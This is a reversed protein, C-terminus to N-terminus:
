LGTSDEDMQEAAPKPKEDQKKLHANLVGLLASILFCVSGIVYNHTGFDVNKWQQKAACSSADTAPPVPEVDADVEPFYFLSGAVFAYCGLTTLGVSVIAILAKCGQDEFAQTSVISLANFFAGIGFLASGALFLATGETLDNHESHEYVGPLFLVSAIAFVVNGIWYLVSELVERQHLAYVAASEGQFECNEKIDMSMLIVNIISTILFAYCANKYQDETCTSYFGFCAALQCVAVCVNIAELVLETNCCEVNFHKKSRLTSVSKPM